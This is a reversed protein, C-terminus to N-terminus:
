RRARVVLVYPELRRCCRRLTPWWVADLLYQVEGEWLKWYSDGDSTDGCENKHQEEATWKHPQAFRSALKGTAVEARTDFLGGRRCLAGVGIFELAEGVVEVVHSLAEFREDTRLTEEQAIDGVFEARRQGAEANREFQSALVTCGFRTLVGLQIVMQISDIAFGSIEVLEDTLQERKRRHLCM